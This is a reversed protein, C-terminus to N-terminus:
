AKHGVISEYEKVAAAFKADDTEDHIEYDTKSTQQYRYIYVDGSKDDPVLAIYDQGDVDFIGEVFCDQEKGDDFELVVVERLEKKPAPQANAKGNNKKKNNNKKNNAM